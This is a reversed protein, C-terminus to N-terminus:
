RQCKLDHRLALSRGREWGVREIRSCESGTARLYLRIHRLYVNRRGVFVAQVEIHEGVPSHLHALPRTCTHPYTCAHARTFVSVHARMGLGVKHKGFLRGPESAFGIFLVTGTMTHNCPPPSVVPHEAWTSARDEHAVGGYPGYQGM